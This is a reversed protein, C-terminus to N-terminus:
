SLFKKLLFNKNHAMLYAKKERSSRYEELMQQYFRAGNVFASVDIYVVNIQVFGNVFSPRFPM